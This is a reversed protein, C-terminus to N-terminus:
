GSRREFKFVNFSFHKMKRMPQRNIRCQMCNSRKGNAICKAQLNNLYAATEEPYKFMHYNDAKAEGYDDEHELRLCDFDRQYLIEFLAGTRRADPQKVVLKGEDCQSAERRQSIMLYIVPKTIPKSAFANEIKSFVHDSFDGISRPFIYIDSDLSEKYDFYAGADQIVLHSKLNAFKYNWSVQDVGTYSVDETSLNYLDAAKKMSWADILCGCGISEISLDKTNKRDQLVWQYMLRNEIAYAYIYRLLYLQQMHVNNYDADKDQCFLKGLFCLDEGSMVFNRFDQEVELLLKRLNIYHKSGISHKQKLNDNNHM